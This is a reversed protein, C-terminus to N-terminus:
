NGNEGMAILIKKNREFANKDIFGYVGQLNDKFQASTIKDKIRSFRNNFEVRESVEKKVWTIDKVQSILMFVDRMDTNRCSVWKMVVLADLNVIRVKIEEPITKGKLMRLASNKFVWTASFMAKSQRDYVNKILIDVSIMFTKKIIKEYRMFDGSYPGFDTDTAKEYGIDELEKTIRATAIKDRVVIDCDVSFRPLTYANVAYGGILIFPYKKIRKITEFVEKERLQLLEM